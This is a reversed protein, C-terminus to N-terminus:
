VEDLNLNTKMKHLDVKGLETRPISEVCFIKKPIKYSSIIAQLDLKIRQLDVISNNQTVIAACVIQGWEDDPLSFVSCDGIYNLKLLANEVEIININEGGSLVIDSRRSEIFLLGDKIFGFDGSIYKTGILDMKNERSPDFYGKSLTQGSICIEGSGSSNQNAISVKMKEFVRGSSSTNKKLEEGSVASIMSTTETSGYVKVIPWNKNLAKTILESESPGGGIYVSRLKKNPKIGQNIIRNLQIPVLSIISPRDREIQTIIRETHPSVVTLEAGCLLARFFIMIGGIHYFPLSSIFNDNTTYNDFSDSNHVSSFINGFSIVVGKASGTSGSTFIVFAPKDETLESTIHSQM